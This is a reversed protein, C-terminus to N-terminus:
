GKLWVADWRLIRSICNGRDWASGHRGNGSCNSEVTLCLSETKKTISRWETLFILFPFPDRDLEMTGPLATGVM